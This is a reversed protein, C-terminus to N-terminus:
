CGVHEMHEALVRSEVDAIGIAAGCFCSSRGDAVQTTMRCGSEWM